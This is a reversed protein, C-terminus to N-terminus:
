WIFYVIARAHLIWPYPYENDIILELLEYIVHPRYAIM